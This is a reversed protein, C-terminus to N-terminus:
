NYVYKNVQNKIMPRFLLTKKKKKKKISPNGKNSPFLIYRSFWNNIGSYDKLFDSDSKPKDSEM